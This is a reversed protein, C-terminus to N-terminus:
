DVKEQNNLATFLPPDVRRMNRDMLMDQTVKNNHHLFIVMNILTEEKSLYGEVCCEFVSRLVPDTNMLKQIEEPYCDFADRKADARARADKSFGKFMNM